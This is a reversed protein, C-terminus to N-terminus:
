HQSSKSGIQGAIVELGFLAAASALWAPASGFLAGFTLYAHSDMRLAHALGAAHASFPALAKAAAEVAYVCVSLTLVCPQAARPAHRSGDLWALRAGAFCSGHLAAHRDIVDNIVAYMASWSPDSHRSLEGYLLLILLRAVTFIATGLM